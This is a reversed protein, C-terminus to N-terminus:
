SERLLADRLLGEVYSGKRQLWPLFVDDRGAVLLHSLVTVSIHVSSESCM